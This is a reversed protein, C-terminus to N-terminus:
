LKIRYLQNCPKNNKDSGLGVYLYDDIIWGIMNERGGDPLQCVETWTDEKPNYRLINDYMRGTTVTGGYFFGSCVYVHQNDSLAVANQRATPIPTCPNWIISDNEIEAEVWFDLSKKFHGTGLFLQGQCMAGAVSHARPPYAAMRAVGDALQTWTDTAIDYRFICREFNWRGGFASYIYQGDTTLVPGVPRSSSYDKLREWQNSAPTWRWWDRLYSEDLHLTGSMGLGIYVHEGVTIARSRVRPKIPTDIETWLNLIPDYCFMKNSLTGDTTRGGFVYGKGDYSFYASATLNIPLEVCREVPLSLNPIEPCCAMMLVLLLLTIHIRISKIM